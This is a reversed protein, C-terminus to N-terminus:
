DKLIVNNGDFARNDYGMFLQVGEVLAWIKVAFIALGATFISGFICLLLQIIAKVKFGLYFNHIGLFGVTIALIAAALRSKQQYGMPPTQYYQNSYQTPNVYNPQNPYPSQNPSPNSQPAQGYAQQHTQRDQSQHPAEQWATQKQQGSWDPTQQNSPPQESPSPQSHQAPASAYNPPQYAGNSPTYSPPRYENNEAAAEPQENLKAEHERKKDRERAKAEVYSQIPDTYGASDDIAEVYAAAADIDSAESGMDSSTSEPSLTSKKESDEAKNQMPVNESPTGSSSDASNEPNNDSINKSINKDTMNDTM